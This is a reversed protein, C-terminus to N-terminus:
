RELRLDMYILEWSQGNFARKGQERKTEEFGLAEYCRIAATNQSFVCLNLKAYGQRKAVDILETLMQKSSGKGRFDPHIFVRCIRAVSEDVEFLEVYGAREDHHLYFFAQCQPLSVHAEIQSANLPFTFTPGGWLYNLEPSDIWDVIQQYDNVQFQTLAM